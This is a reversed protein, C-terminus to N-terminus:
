YIINQIDIETIEKPTGSKLVVPFMRGTKDQVLWLPEMNGLTSDYKLKPELFKIPKLKAEALYEGVEEEFDEKDFLEDYLPALKYYQRWWENNAKIVRIMKM